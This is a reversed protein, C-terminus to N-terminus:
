APVFGSTVSITNDVILRQGSIFQSEDSALFLAANAVDNPKGIRTEGTARNQPVQLGKEVAGAMKEPLGTVMPTEIGAPHISNCRINYKMQACHVAVARTLGEVAGKAACYAAFLSEGQVSALSAMNIISGGGSEKMAKVAYKCGFFTGDSSVANVFRWEDTTQTEIDGVEVVGANNVLTDLKGFRAVTEDIVRIWEDENRVDHKMFVANDGLDRAVAEGGSTDVDTLVVKAGEQVFLRADAEGLGKAAGTVIAVKNELRGM